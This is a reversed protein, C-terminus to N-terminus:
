AQSAIDYIYAALNEHKLAFKKTAVLYAFAFVKFFAYGLLVGIANLLVDNVDITRYAYGLLLSILLQVTEIGIGVAFALLIFNKTKVRAIFNLGFGFPMTLIINNIIGWFSAPTLGYKDFYFPTLNVDAMLSTKKMVEVYLGNIQIPFFVKDIAFLVYVEFISLFFLFPLNHTRRWLVALTIISIIIGAPWLSTTTDNYLIEM